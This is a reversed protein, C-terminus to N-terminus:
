QPLVKQQELQILSINGFKNHGDTLFKTAEARFDQAKYQQDKPDSNSDITKVFEDIENEM